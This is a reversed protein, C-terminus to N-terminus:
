TVMVPSPLEWPRYGQRDIAAELSNPNLISPPPSMEGQTVYDWVVREVVVMSISDAADIVGAESFRFADLSTRDERLRALASMDDLWFEEIGAYLGISGYEFLTGKFIAPDTDLTTNVVYKRVLGRECVSQLLTSARAGRMHSNFAAQSVGEVKKLFHILKVGGSRFDERQFMTDFNSISTIFRHSGFKHPQMREVYDKVHVSSIVDEYSNVHHEAFSEWEEISLPYILSDSSAEPINFHQVYRKFLIMVSPSTLMLAVHIISWEYFFRERTAGDMHRSALTFKLM